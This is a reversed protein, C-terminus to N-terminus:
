RNAALGLGIGVGIYIGAAVACGAGGTFLTIFCVIGMVILGFFIWLFFYGMFDNMLEASENEMFEDVARAKEDSELLSSWKEKSSGGYLPDRRELYTAFEEESSFMDSIQLLANGKGELVKDGKSDIDVAVRLADEMSQGRASASIEEKSKGTVKSAEHLMAEEDGTEAARKLAEVRELTLGSKKVIWSKTLFNEQMKEVFQVITLEKEESSLGWAQVHEESFDRGLSSFFDLEQFCRPLEAITCSGTKEVMARLKDHGEMNAVATLTSIKNIAKSATRYTHPCTALCASNGWSRIHGTYDRINRLWKKALNHDTEHPYTVRCQWNRWECKERPSCTGFEGGFLSCGGTYRDAAEYASKRMELASRLDSAATIAIRGAQVEHVGLMLIIAVAM